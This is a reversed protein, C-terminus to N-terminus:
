PTHSSPIQATSSQEAEGHPFTLALRKDPLNPECSPQSCWSWLSNILYELRSESSDLAIENEVIMHGATDQFLARLFLGAENGPASMDQEAYIKWRLLFVPGLKTTFSRTGNSSSTM